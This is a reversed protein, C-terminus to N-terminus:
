RRCPADRRVGACPPGTPGDTNGHRRRGVRAPASAPDTSRFVLPANPLSLPAEFFNLQFSALVCAGPHATLFHVNTQRHLGNAAQELAMAAWGHIRQKARNVGRYIALELGSPVDGTARCRRSAEFASSPKSARSRLTRDTPGAGVGHACTDISVDMPKRAGRPRIAKNPAPNAAIRADVQRTLGNDNDNSPKKPAQIPETVKSCGNRGQNSRAVRAASSQSAANDRRMGRQVPNMKIPSPMHDIQNVSYTGIHLRQPYHHVRKVKGRHYPKFHGWAVTFDPTAPVPTGAQLRTCCSLWM